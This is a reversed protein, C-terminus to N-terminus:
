AIVQHPWSALRHLKSSCPMDGDPDSMCVACGLVQMSCRAHVTSSLLLPLSGNGAAELVQALASIADAALRALGVLIIPAAAAEKHQHPQQAREGGESGQQQSATDVGHYYVM